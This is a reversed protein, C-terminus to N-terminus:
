NILQIRTSHNDEKPVGFTHFIFVTNPYTYGGAGNYPVDDQLRSYQININVLEQNKAFTMFGSGYFNQQVSTTNNKFNFTAMTCLTGNVKNTINYTQNLFPLGGVKM